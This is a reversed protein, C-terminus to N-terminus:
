ACPGADPREGTLIDVLENSGLRSIGVAVRQGIEFPVLDVDAYRMRDYEQPVIGELVVVGSEGEIQVSYFLDDPPAPVESSRATIVGVYVRSESM